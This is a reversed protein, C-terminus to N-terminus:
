REVTSPRLALGSRLVAVFGPDLYSQVPAQESLITEDIDAAEDATSQIARYQAAAMTLVCLAAMAVAILKSRYVNRWNLAITGNGIFVAGTSRRPARSLAKERAQELQALVHKPLDDLGQELHAALRRSFQDQTDM